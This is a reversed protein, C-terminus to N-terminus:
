QADEEKVRLGYYTADHREISRAPLASPHVWYTGPEGSVPDLRSGAPVDFPLGGKTHFRLATRTTKM